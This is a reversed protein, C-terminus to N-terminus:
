TITGTGTGTGTGAIVQNSLPALTPANPVVPDRQLGATSPTITTATTVAVAVTVTANAKFHSVIATALADSLKRLAPRGKKKIPGFSENIGNYILDALADSSLPM